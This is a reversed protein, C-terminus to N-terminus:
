YGDVDMCMMWSHVWWEDMHTKASLWNEEQQNDQRNMLTDRAREDKLINTGLNKYENMWEVPKRSALKSQWHHPQRRWWQVALFTVGMGWEVSMWGHEVGVNMWPHQRWDTWGERCENSATKNMLVAAKKTLPTTIDSKDGSYQVSQLNEDGVIWGHWLGGIYIYITVCDDINLDIQWGDILTNMPTRRNHVQCGHAHRSQHRKDVTWSDSYVDGAMSCATCCEDESSTREDVIWKVYIDECM